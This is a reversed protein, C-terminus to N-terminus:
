RSPGTEQRPVPDSAHGRSAVRDQHGEARSTLCWIRHFTHVRHRAGLVCAAVLCSISIHAGRRHRPHDVLGAVHSTYTLIPIDVDLVAVRTAEKAAHQTLVIPIPDLARRRNATSDRAVKRTVIWQLQEVLEPTDPQTLAAHARWRDESDASMENEWSASM